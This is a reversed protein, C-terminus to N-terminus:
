DCFLAFFIPVNRQSVRTPAVFLEIDAYNRSSVWFIEGLDDGVVFLSSQSVNDCFSGFKVHVLFEVVFEFIEM